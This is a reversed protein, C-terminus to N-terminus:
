YHVITLGSRVSRLREVEGVSVNRCSGIDLVSLREGYWQGESVTDSTATESEGEAALGNLSMRRAAPQRRTALSRLTRDSVNVCSHLDLHQLADVRELLAVVGEDTVHFCQFVSLHTLVAGTVSGGLATLAADTLRYCGGLNLRQLRCSNVLAVISADTINSSGQLNLCTLATLQTLHAIAADTMQNGGFPNASSLHLTTIAPCHKSISEIAADSMNLGHANFRELLPLRQVASIVGSSNILRCGAINLGRLGAPLDAVAANTLKVLGRVSLEDLRSCHKSLAVVSADTLQVCGYLSAHELQPASQAINIVVSDTVTRLNCLHLEKLHLLSPLSPSALSSSFFASTLKTCNCLKLTEASEAYKSVLSAMGRDDMATAWGSVDLRRWLVRDASLWKWRSCVAQLRCLQQTDLFSFVDFLLIEDPLTSFLCSCKLNWFSRRVLSCSSLRPSHSHTHQPSSRPSISSSPSHPSPHSHTHHHHHSHHDHMIHLSAADKIPVLPSSPSLPPSSSLPATPSYPQKASSLLLQLPSHSPTYHHRPLPRHDVSM